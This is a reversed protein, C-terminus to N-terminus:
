EVRLPLGLKKSCGPFQSHFGARLQLRYAADDQVEPPAFDAREYDTGMSKWTGYSFQYAGYYGNGTNTQYNGSTECNRLKELAEQATM